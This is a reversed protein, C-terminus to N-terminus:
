VGSVDSLKRSTLTLAMAIHDLLPIEFAETSVPSKIVRKKPPFNETAWVTYPYLSFHEIHEHSM